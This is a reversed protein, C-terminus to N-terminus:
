ARVTLSGSQMLFRLAHASRKKHKLATRLGEPKVPTIAQEARQARVGFRDTSLRQAFQNTESQSGTVDPPSRLSAAERSWCAFRASWKVSRLSCEVEACHRETEGGCAFRV